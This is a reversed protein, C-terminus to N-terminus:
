RYIMKTRNKKYVIKIDWKGDGDTDYKEVSRGGIVKSLQVEDNKFKKLNNM